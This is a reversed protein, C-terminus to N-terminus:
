PAVEQWTYTPTKLFEPANLILDPREVISFVPGKGNNTSCLNRKQNFSTATADLHALKANSIFVGAANLRKDPNTCDGNNDNGDLVINGDASYFGEINCNTSTYSQQTAPTCQTSIDYATTGVSKDITIDGSVSFTATSGNPVLINENILLNGNILFVYNKGAPFVYPKNNTPIFKTTYYSIYVGNPLNAPLQCASLDPCFTKLDVPTIGNSRITQLMYDYSTRIINTNVPKFKGGTGYVVWGKSSANGVGFDPVDSSESFIVGPRNGSGDLSMYRYNRPTSPISLPIKNNIGTDLRMDGGTGQIWPYSFIAFDAGSISGQASCPTAVDKSEPTLSCPIGASVRYSPSSIVDGQQTTRSLPPYLPSYGDPVTFTIDYTGKGTHLTYTGNCSPDGAICTYSDIPPAGPDANPDKATVTWRSANPGFFPTEGNNLIGDKNGDIFVTGRVAYGDWHTKGQDTAAYRADCFGTQGYRDLAIGYYYDGPKQNNLDDIATFTYTYTTPDYTRKTVESPGGTQPWRLTSRYINVEEGQITNTTDVQVYPTGDGNQRSIATLTPATTTPGTGSTTTLRVSSAGSSATWWCNIGPYGSITYTDSTNPPLGVTFQMTHVGVYCINGNGHSICTGAGDIRTGASSPIFAPKGSSGILQLYQPLGNDPPGWSGWVSSSTYKLTFTATTATSSTQTATSLGSAFPGFMPPRCNRYSEPYVIVGYTGSYKSANNSKAEAQYYYLQRQSQSYLTDFSTGFGSGGFQNAVLEGGGQAAFGPVNNRYFTGYVAAPQPTQATAITQTRGSLFDTIRSMIGHADNKKQAITSKQLLYGDGGGDGGGGVIYPYSIKAIHGAPNPNIPNGGADLADFRAVSPADNPPPLQNCYPPPTPQPCVVCYIPGLAPPCAAQVSPDNRCYTNQTATGTKCGSNAFFNCKCGSGPPDDYPCLNPPTPVATPADCNIPTLTQDQIVIVGGADRAVVRCIYTNQDQQDNAFATPTSNQTKNNETYVPNATTTNKFLYADYRTAGTVPDFGLTFNVTNAVGPKCRQTCQIQGPPTTPTPTPTNKAVTFDVTAPVFSGEVCGPTTDGVGCYHSNISNAGDIVYNSDLSAPDLYVTHSAAAPTPNPSSFSYSSNAAMASPKGTCDTTPDLCVKASLTYPRGNTDSINGSITGPVPTPAVCATQFQVGGSSPSRPCTGGSAFVEWSYNVAGTITPLNIPMTCKTGPAPNACGADAAYYRNTCLDKTSGTCDANKPYSAQITGDPSGDGDDVRIDYWQASPVPDWRLTTTSACGLNSRPQMSNIQPAGPCVPTPTPPVGTPPTCNVTIAKSGCAPNITGSDNNHLNVFLESGGNVDPSYGDVHVYAHYNGTPLSLTKTFSGGGIGDGNSTTKDQFQYEITGGGSDNTISVYSGHNVTGNFIPDAEFNVCSGPKCWYRGSFTVNCSNITSVSDALQGNISLSGGIHEGCTPPPPPPNTPVLTAAVTPVTTATAGPVTTATASPPNTPAPAFIGCAAEGCSNTTCYYGAPVEACTASSVGCMVPTANDCEGDYPPKPAGSYPPVAKCSNASLTGNRNCCTKYVGGISGNCNGHKLYPYNPPISLSGDYCKDATSYVANAYNYEAICKNAVDSNYCDDYAYRSWATGGNCATGCDTVGVDASNYCGTPVGSCKDALDCLGNATVALHEAATNSYHYTTAAEINIVTLLTFFLYFAATLSFKITRKM